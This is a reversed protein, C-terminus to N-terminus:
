STVVGAGGLGGFAFGTVLVVDVMADEVEGEEDEGADVGVATVAGFDIGLGRFDSLADDCVHSLPPHQRGGGDGLLWLIIRLMVLTQKIICSRSILRRSIRASISPLIPEMNLAIVRRNRFLLLLMRSLPRNQSLHPLIFPSNSSHATPYITIQKTVDEM